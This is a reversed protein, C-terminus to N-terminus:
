EFVDLVIGNANPIVLGLAAAMTTGFDFNYAKEQYVVNKKIGKGWIVGFIHNASDLLSDHQGRVVYQTFYNSSFCYRGAPTIVMDATGRRFGMANLDERILVKGVYPLKELEAKLAKLEDDTIGSRWTLLLNLNAGVAVIETKAKPSSGAPVMELIYRKDYNQFFAQLDGLKSTGYDGTDNLSTLGFPTMGHDTTLFFTMRDYIGEDKCAQLFDGLRQDMEKLRNFVNELRGEETTAKRSGYADENHGLADLDDAYFVILRPLESVVKKEGRVNVAEKKVLRIMQTFRAYFDSAKEPGRQVIEPLSSDSTIYYKGDGTLLPDLLYHAVSAVSMGAEIAVHAITKNANEREQQIVKNTAKDYYRYVNKTVESTSGSLIMNQCPNTISPLTTRLNDFFVGESAIQRLTPLADPERRLLEDYYYRAFGDWNIYVVYANEVMAEGEQYNPANARNYINYENTEPFETESGPDSEEGPPKCGSFLFLAIFLLTLIGYYKKMFMERQKSIFFAYDIQM